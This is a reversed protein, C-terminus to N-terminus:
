RASVLDTPSADDTPLADIQHLLVEGQGHINGIAAISFDGALDTPCEDLLTTTRLPGGLDCVRDLLEKPVGM